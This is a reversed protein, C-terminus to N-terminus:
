KTTKAVQEALNRLGKEFDAGLMTDMDMFLGFVKDSFGARQDYTWRVSTGEGAPALYFGVDAESQWPSTFVLRMVVNTDPEVSTIAMYGVGVDANGAWAYRAGVGASPDSIETKQAPDIGSWPSWVVFRKLDVLEPYIAAPAAAITLSREVHIVDPRTAAVILVGVVVVGVAAVVGLLIKKVSM